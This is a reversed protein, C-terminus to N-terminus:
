DVPRAEAIPAPNRRHYVPMEAMRRAAWFRLMAAVTNISISIEKVIKVEQSIGVLPTQALTDKRGSATRLV